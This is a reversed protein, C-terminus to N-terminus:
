VPPLIGGGGLPAREASYGLPARTLLFFWVWTESPWTVLDRKALENWRLFPLFSTMAVHNFSWSSVKLLQYSYCSTYSTYKPIKLDTVTIPWTINKAWDLTLRHSFISVHRKQVFTMRSTFVRTVPLSLVSFRFLVVLPCHGRRIERPWILDYFIGLM